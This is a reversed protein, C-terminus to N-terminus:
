KLICGGGPQCTGPQDTCGFQEESTFLTVQAGPFQLAGAAPDTRDVISRFSCQTCTDAKEANCGPPLTGSADPGTVAAALGLAAIDAKAKTSEAKALDPVAIWPGTGVSLKVGDPANFAEGAKPSQEAVIGKAIGPAQVETTTVAFGLGELETRAQAGDKGIYDGITAGKSLTVKVASWWVAAEGAAPSQQTVTDIAKMSEIPAASADVRLWAGEIASKANESTQGVVDPVKSCGAMVLGFALVGSIMGIRRM